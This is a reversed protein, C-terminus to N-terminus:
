AEFTLQGRGSAILSWSRHGNAFTAQWGGYGLSKDVVDLRTSANLWPELRGNDWHDGPHPRLASCHGRSSADRRSAAWRAPITAINMMPDGELKAMAAKIAIVLKFTGDGPRRLYKPVDITGRRLRSAVTSSTGPISRPVFRFKPPGQRNPPTLTQTALSGGGALSM